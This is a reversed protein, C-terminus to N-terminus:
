EAGGKAKNEAEVDAIEAACSDCVWRCPEVRVGCADCQDVSLHDKNTRLTEDSM